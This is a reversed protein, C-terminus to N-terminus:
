QVLRKEHETVIRIAANGDDVLTLVAVVAEDLCRRRLADYFKVIHYPRTPGSIFITSKILRSMTTGASCAVSLRPMRSSSAAYIDACWERISRADSDFTQDFALCEGRRRDAFADRDRVALEARDALDDGAQAPRRGTDLEVRHVTLRGIQKEHEDRGLRRGARM